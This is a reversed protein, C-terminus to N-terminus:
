CRSNKSQGLRNHLSVRQSISEIIDKADARSNPLRADRTVAQYLIDYSSARSTAEALGIQTSSQAGTWGGETSLESASWHLDEGPDAM